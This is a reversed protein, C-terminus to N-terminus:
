TGCLRERVPKRAGGVIGRKLGYLKFGALATFVIGVVLQPVDDWTLM